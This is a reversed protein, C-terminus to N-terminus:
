DATSDDDSSVEERYSQIKGTYFDIIDDPRRNRPVADISDATFQSFWSLLGGTGANALANGDYSGLSGLGSFDGLAGFSSGVSDFAVDLADEAGVDKAKQEMQVQQAVPAVLSQMSYLLAKFWSTMGTTTTANGDEDYSINTYEYDFGSTLDNQFQLWHLHYSNFANYFDNGLTYLEHLINTIDSTIQVNFFHPRVSMWRTTSSNKISISTKLDLSKVGTADNGVYKLCYYYCKFDRYIPVDSASYESTRIVRRDYFQRHVVVWDDTNVLNDVTYYIIPNDDWYDGDFGLCFQVYTNKQPRVIYM